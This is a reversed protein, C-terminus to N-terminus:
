PWGRSISRSRTRSSGSSHIGEHRVRESTHGVNMKQDKSDHIHAFLKHARAEEDPKGAAELEKGRDVLRLLIARMRLETAWAPLRSRSHAGGDVAHTKVARVRPTDPLTGVGRISLREGSGFIWRSRRIRERCKTTRTRSTELLLADLGSCTEPAAAKRVQSEGIPPV